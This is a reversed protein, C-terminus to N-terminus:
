FTGVIDASSADNHTLLACLTRVFTSSLLILSIFVVAIYKLVKLCFLLNFAYATYTRISLLICFFLNLYVALFDCGAVLRSVDQLLCTIWLSIDPHTRM